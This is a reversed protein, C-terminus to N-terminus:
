GEYIEKLGDRDLIVIGSRSTIILERKNLKNLIRSLTEPQINLRYAMEQKKLNKFTEFDNVLTYAVKAVGDYVLERNILCELMSAKKAFIKTLTLLIKPHNLCFNSFKEYDIMLVESEQMCEINGFCVIKNDDLNSIKTILSDSEINYLFIENDFRDVKYVKVFGRKLYYLEKKVDKEYYIIDKDCYIRIRSFSAITELEEDSLGDFLSLEKLDKITTM